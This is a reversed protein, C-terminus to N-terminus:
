LKNQKRYDSPTTNHKEKFLNYFYSLSHFGCDYCIDIISLDSNCLLTAAHNIRLENIFTIPTMNSYKVFSRCIHEKSKGSIEAMRPLGESFNEVKQMETCLNIFWLPSKGGTNKYQLNIFHNTFIEVLIVRLKMKFLAMNTFQIVALEEMHEQLIIKKGAKIKIHPPLSDNLLATISIDNDFFATLNEMISKSFVVNCFECEKQTQKDFEHCDSPSIFLLSGEELNQVAGNVLHRVSGKTILQFEYFEHDHLGMAKKVSVISQYYGGIHQKIMTEPCRIM